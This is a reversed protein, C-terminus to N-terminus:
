YESIKRLLDRYVNLNEIKKRIIDSYNQKFILNFKNSLISSNINSYEFCCNDINLDKMLSKVKIDYSIGLIPIHFFSALVISHLRMGIICNLSSISELFLSTDNKFYIYEVNLIESTEFINVYVTKDSSMIDGKSNQFIFCKIKLNYEDNLKSIFIRLSNIFKKYQVKDHGGLDSGWERLSLGLTLTDDHHGSSKFNSPISHYLHYVPDPATCCSLGTIKKFLLSSNNDRLLVHDFNSLVSKLLKSNKNFYFPGIGGGWIITTKKLKQAIYIIYLKSRLIKRSIIDRLYTGGGLVVLDCKLLVLLLKLFQLRGRLRLPKLVNNEKCCFNLPNCPYYIKNCKKLLDSTIIDFLLEDGLNNYGYWGLLLVTNNKKL